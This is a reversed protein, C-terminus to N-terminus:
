KRRSKKYYLYKKTPSKGFKKLNLFKSPKNPIKQNNMIVWIILAIGSLIMMWSIVGKILKEEPNKAQSPVAMDNEEMISDSLDPLTIKNQVSQEESKPSEETKNEAKETAKESKRPRDATQFSRKQKKETEKKAKETEKKAPLTESQLKKPENPSVQQTQPKPTECPPARQPESSSSNVEQTPSTPTPSEPIDEAEVIFIPSTLAFILLTCFTNIFFRKNM